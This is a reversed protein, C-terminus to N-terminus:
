WFQWAAKTQQLVNIPWYLRLIYCDIVTNDTCNHTVLLDGKYGYVLVDDTHKDAIAIAFITIICHFLRLSPFQQKYANM